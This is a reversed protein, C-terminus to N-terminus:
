AGEGLVATILARQAASLHPDACRITRTDVTIEYTFGDPAARHPPAPALAAEALAHLRGADPRDTTDVCARRALGAFGGSRVVEIRM